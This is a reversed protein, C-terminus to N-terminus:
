KQLPPPEEGEVWVQMRCTPDIKCDYVERSWDHRDVGEYTGERVARYHFLTKAPSCKGTSKYVEGTELDTIKVGSTFGNSKITVLSGNGPLPGCWNGTSRVEVDWLQEGEVQWAVNPFNLNNESMRALEAESVRLGFKFIIFGDSSPMRQKGDVVASVFTGTVEFKGSSEPRNHEWLSFGVIAALIAATLGFALILQKM